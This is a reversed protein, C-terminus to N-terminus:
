NSPDLDGVTIDLAVAIKELTKFSPSHVDAELRSIQPQRLGSKKALETQTFGKEERRTKVKNGIWNTRREVKGPIQEAQGFSGMCVKGILQPFLIERITEYIEDREEPATERNTIMEMLSVIDKLSENPLEKFRQLLWTVIVDAPGVDALSIQHATKNEKSLTAM